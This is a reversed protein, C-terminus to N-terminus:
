SAAREIEAVLAKVREKFAHVLNWLATHNGLATGGLMDAHLNDIRAALTAGRVPVAEAAPIGQPSHDATSGGASVRDSASAEGASADDGFGM